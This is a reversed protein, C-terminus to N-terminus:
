NTQTENNGELESRCLEFYKCWLCCHKCNKKHKRWLKFRARLRCTENKIVYKTIYRYFKAASNKKRKM